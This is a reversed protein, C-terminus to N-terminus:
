SHTSNRLGYSQILEYQELLIAKTIKKLKWFMPYIQCNKGHFLNNFEEGKGVIM